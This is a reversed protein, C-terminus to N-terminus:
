FMTNLRAALDESWHFDGEFIVPFSNSELTDVLTAASVTHETVTGNLAREGDIPLDYSEGAGQPTMVECTLHYSDDTESVRAVV